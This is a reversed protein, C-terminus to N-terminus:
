TVLGNTALSSAARIRARSRRDRGSAAPSETRLKPSTWISGSAPTTRRLPSSTWQVRVSNRDEAALVQQLLDPAVVVETVPAQDVDM